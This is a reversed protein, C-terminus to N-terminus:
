GAVANAGGAGALSAAIMAARDNDPLRPGAPTAGGRRSRRKMVPAM